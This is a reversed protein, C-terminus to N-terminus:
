PMEEWAVRSLPQGPVVSVNKVTRLTDDSLTWLLSFHDGEMGCLNLAALPTESIRGFFVAFENALDPSPYQHTALSEALGEQKIGYLVYRDEYFYRLYLVYLDGEAARDNMFVTVDENWFM